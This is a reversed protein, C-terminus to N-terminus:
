FHVDNEDWSPGIMVWLYLAIVIWSIIAGIFSVAGGLITLIVKWNNLQLSDGEVRVVWFQAVCYGLLFHILICVVGFLVLVADSDIYM